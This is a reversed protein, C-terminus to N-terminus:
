GQRRYNPYKFGCAIMIEEVRDDIRVPVHEVITCVMDQLIRRVSERVEEENGRTIQAFIAPRVENIPQLEQHNPCIHVGRRDWGGGCKTCHANVMM